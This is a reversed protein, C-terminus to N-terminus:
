SWDIPGKSVVEDGMVMNAYVSVTSTFKVDIMGIGDQAVLLLMKGDNSLEAGSAVTMGDTTVPPGGASSSFWVRVVFANSTLVGNPYKDQKAPRGMRDSVAITFRREDTNILNESGYTFLPVARPLDFLEACRQWAIALTEITRTTISVLSRQM